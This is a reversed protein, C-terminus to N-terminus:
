RLARLTQRYVAQSVPVTQPVGPPQSGEPGAGEICMTERLGIRGGGDICLVRHWLHQSAFPDDSEISDLTLMRVRIGCGPEAEVTVGYSAPKAMLIHLGEKWGLQELSEVVAMFQASTAIVAAGPYALAALERAKEETDIPEFFAGRYRGELTAQEIGLVLLHYSENKLGTAQFANVGAKLRLNHINILSAPKVRDEYKGWNESGFRPWGYDPNIVPDGYDAISRFPNVHFTEAATVKGASDTTLFVPTRRDWSGAVYRNTSLDMLACTVWLTVRRGRPLNAAAGLESVPVEARCDSWRAPQDPTFINSWVKVYAGKKQTTPAQLPTGNELYFPFHVAYWHNPAGTVAFAGRVVILDQSWIVAETDLYQIHEDFSPAPPVALSGLRILILLLTVKKGTKWMACAQRRM